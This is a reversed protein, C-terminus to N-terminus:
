VDMRRLAYFGGACVGTIDSEDWGWSVFTDYWEETLVAIMAEENQYYSARIGENYYIEAEADGGPIIGRHAAEAFLFQLEPYSMLMGPSTAKSYFDGIKSTNALGNGEFAAANASSLGNPIGVYEGTGTARNAYLSVRYDPSAVEAYLMDILNKSVRHDDRTKRNENIPNNNPASGLYQLAINDENSEMVPYSAPDAVMKSIETTALAEDRDSMRMLLRIRLSNAFKKWMVIDNGFLIDGAIESVM